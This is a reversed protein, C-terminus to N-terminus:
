CAGHQFVALWLCPSFWLLLAHQSTRQMDCIGLETTNKAEGVSDPAGWHRADSGLELCQVVQDVETSGGSPVLYLCLVGVHVPGAHYMSDLAGAM